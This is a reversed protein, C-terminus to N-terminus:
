HANDGGFGGGLSGGSVRAKVRFFAFLGAVVGLVAGTISIGVGAWDTPVAPEGDLSPATVGLFTQRLANASSAVIIRGKQSRNSFNNNRTSMYHYVGATGMKMVGGDFYPYKDANLKACNTATDRTADNNLAAVKLCTAADQDLFSLANIRAVSGGLLTQSAKNLTYVKRKNADVRGDPKPKGTVGDVELPPVNKGPDALQVFNHRDSNQQGEGDNPNRAPNYDSGIWQFHVFAGESTALTQPVFDYEVAPYTQVINGRKGRVNLNTVRAEPGITAPRAKVEFV